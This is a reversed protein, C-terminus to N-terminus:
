AKLPRTTARLVIDADVTIKRAATNDGGSFLAEVAADVMREVPLRVTSLENSGWSASPIDGFGVVGLEEPIRRKMDLRTGDLVGIATTDSSCVIADPMHPSDLAERAFARGAAYGLHDTRDLVVQGRGSTRLQARFAETRLKGASLDPNGRVLAFRRYGASLLTQALERGVRANDCVVSTSPLAGADRNVLVLRGGGRVFDRAASESPASSVFIIGDVRYQMLMRCAADVDDESRCALLMLRYDRANLKETFARLMTTYFPNEWEGMIVGVLRSRRTILSRAIVNPQYGLKKAAKEVKRRTAASVSAEPTFTRSVASRSVGALLAVERSTVAHTTSRPSKRRVSRKTRLKGGPAKAM